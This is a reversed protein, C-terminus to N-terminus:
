IESIGQSRPRIPQAGPMHLSGRPPDPYWYEEKPGLHRLLGGGLRERMERIYQANMTRKRFAPLVSWRQIWQVELFSNGPPRPFRFYVGRSRFHTWSASSDELFGGESIHRLIVSRARLFFLSIYCVDVYVFSLLRKTCADYLAPSSLTQHCRLAAYM